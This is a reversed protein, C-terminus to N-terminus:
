SLRQVKKLVKQSSKKKLLNNISRAGEDPSTFSVNLYFNAQEFFHERQEQMGTLREVLKDHREHVDSLQALDALLPRKLLEGKDRELRRAIEVIDCMLWISLGLQNLTALNKKSALAGGGVVVVHNNITSLDEILDSEVKRFYEEGKQAFIQAISLQENAEIEQDVDIFGVGLLYASIKGLTSKGCGSQGCLIINPVTRLRNFNKSPIGAM